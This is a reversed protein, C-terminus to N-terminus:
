DQSLPKTFAWGFHYYHSAISHESILKLASFPSVIFMPITWFEPNHMEKM